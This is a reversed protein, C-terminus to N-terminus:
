VEDTDDDLDLSVSVTYVEEDEETNLIVSMPHEGQDILLVDQLLQLEEQRLSVKREVAPTVQRTLHCRLM